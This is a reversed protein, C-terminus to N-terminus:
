NAHTHWVVAVIGAVTVATVLRGVDSGDSVSWSPQYRGCQFRNRGRVSMTVAWKGGTAYQLRTAVM